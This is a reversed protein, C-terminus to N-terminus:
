KRLRRTEYELDHEVMMAVLQEFNVEPQWGLKAKAKSPDGILLDVEAPRLFKADHRVYPRWDGLGVKDFALTLFEEVSHTEGTAIVFDDPEDQQLMLWMAKVYDGAYGWDRKADTNGLVLEKDVGLKIRAATNTIKRTVFELGRRPGEHNFLIGSCAYLGYSERYNMTINHGFVKAVGYPSRPHFPTMETQPVERVKGFMESSSAQYFRIPNNQAGGVMRVAELARLVGPLERALREFEDAGIDPSVELRDRVKGDVQVVATVSEDVLLTPDAVPWEVLSVCPQHGLMSWMEEATYPAYLDLMMATVEVAERVAPDAGGAGADIVKRTANVLEMLRAVLVNFKFSEVLGPADALLAHTVRRLGADGSAPDVGAVSSVDDALRWARAL